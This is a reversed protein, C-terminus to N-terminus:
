CIELENLLSFMLFVIEQVFWNAIGPWANQHAGKFLMHM